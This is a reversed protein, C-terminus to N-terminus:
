QRLSWSPFLRTREGGGAGPAGPRGLEGQAPVSRIHPPEAAREVASDRSLSARHRSWARPRSRQSAAHAELAPRSPGDASATNQSLVVVTKRRALKPVADLEHMKRAVHGMQAPVTPHAIVEGPTIHVSELGSIGLRGLGVNLCGALLYAPLVTGSVDYFRSAELQEGEVGPGGPCLVDAWTKTLLTHLASRHQPALRSTLPEHEAAAVDRKELLVRPEKSEYDGASPLTAQGLTDFCALAKVAGVLLDMVASAVDGPVRGASFELALAVRAPGIATSSAVIDPVIRAPAEVTKYTFATKDLSLAASGDGPFRSRHRVVTSFQTWGPWDTCERIIAQGGLAEHALSFACERQVLQMLHLASPRRSPFRVRVPVTNELPGVMSSSLSSPSSSSSSSPADTRAGLRTRRRQGEVLEGFVVDASGSLRALVMAWATKLVTDFCIGVDGLPAVDVTEHLATQDAAPGCPRPHPVVQTMRAGALRTKWHRVSDRRRAGAQAAQAFQLFSPRAPVSDPREYLRVLDQVVQAASGETMQATSFRMLLKGQKGGGGELYTFGTVPRGLRLPLRRDQQMAMDAEGDLSRAPCCRYRFPARFSAVAVQYARCEHVAFATRLIPHVMTLAECAAELRQQRVPGDFDLVLWGIDGRPQYLSSEISQSQQSTAEAAELVDHRSDGLQPALVLKILGEYPGRDWTESVRPEHSVKGGGRADDEDDSDVSYTSRCIDTLTAGRLVQRISVDFGGQRCSVVLRAALLKDGGADSFSDSPRIGAAATGLVGAWILRMSEETKTLPLPKDVFPPTQVGTYQGDALGMLQTYTLSAVMRRLRRRNVKLSVSLPLGRVPVFVPPICQWPLEKEAKISKSLSTEVARRAAFLKQKVEPGLCNLDYPKCGPKRGLDLFAALLSMSDSTTIPEVAVDVGRALCLRIQREIDAILVPTGSVTIEDQRSAVLRVHGRDLHRAVQGTRLYRWKPKTQPERLFEPDMLPQGPVFRHPTVLPSDIALEGTAGIPVMRKPDKPNLVLFRGMLPPGIVDAEDPGRVQLVSIALPCVDPAGYAVLVNTRPLWPSYTEQDLSRTRFCITKLSPVKTPELRRALVPTMYSWSVNMHTIVGELDDIRDSESPICVCGGHLLTCFIEVLAVDVNFASLQLVRSGDCISLAPGQVSLISCLSQHTFFIGKPKTAGPSLFVCAAQEPIPEHPVFSVQPPLAALASQNVLVCNDVAPSIHKWAPGTVLVLPPTLQRIISMATAVDQGDLAVFCGGAKLVALMVVPSWLCKDLVLPVLAGPGVGLNVLHTALKTVSAELQQYSLQGDWASVAKAQPRRRAQQIILQHICASVKTDTQCPDWDPTTIQRYDRETFLDIDSVPRAPADLVLHLAREFSNVVNHAQDATFHHYTIDGRLRNGLRTICLSLECNANVSSAVLEPQWAASELHIRNTIRLAQTADQFSVCTNFLPEGALGLAHEIEAVTPCESKAAERSLAQLGRLVDMVVLHPSSLDMLCPVLAALSGINQLRHPPLTQERGPSQYGFSIKDAGAFTRLVLAWSLKILLSPELNHERCFGLVRAPSINLDFGRTQMRGRNQFALRPFLCPAAVGPTIGWAELRYTADQSSIHRHRRTSPAELLHIAEGAYMRRLQSILTHISAPDCIAQSADLRLYTQTSSASISLRHRPQSLPLKMAPISALTEVPNSSDVFLVSPSISKLIVKDFLGRESISEIFVTRLSAHMAVLSAWAEGLRAQDIPQHQQQDHSLPVIEYTCSVHFAEPAQAQAILMEQQVPDVPGLSDVNVVSDLGVAALRSAALRAVADYSTDLLPADALTLQPQMVRLRGVAELLSHEFNHMWAAIRDRRAAHANFLFEVRAGAADIVVSVEFLAIRGVRPGIDSVLSEFERDPAAIPELIGGDRGLQRLTEVCNFMVEVPIAEPQSPSPSASSTSFKSTPLSASSSSASCCSSPSLPASTSAPSAPSAGGQRSALVACRTDKVLRVLQVLDTEVDAAAVALPCLTTFWGVTTDLADHRDGRGGRGGRDRGHHQKWVTPVRRDPFTQRFSHLLAAVLIDASETRFVANCEAVLCAAADPTLCFALQATDAYCNRRGQLAWYSAMSSGLVPDVVRQSGELSQREAWRPFAMSSSSSPSSPSALTGHRLLSDLDDLLVRWSVVDVVLHHAVLYLLQHNNRTRIHQAAFVPGRFVNLSRQAQDMIALLAKNKRRRKKEKKKVREGEDEEKNKKKSRTRKEGRGRLSDDNDEEEEVEEGDVVDDGGGNDAEDDDYDDDDDDDDAYKHEFRYSRRAAPAIVQAWGDGTLRFRARLMAHRCALVDIAAEIDALEAGGGGVRLLISQSFRFGAGSVAASEISRKMTTRFFLQQMLSLPFFESEKGPEEAAGPGQWAISEKRAEASPSEPLTPTEKAEEAQLGEREKRKMMEMATDGRRHRILQQLELIQEEVEETVNQVWTQLQRADPEGRGDLAMSRLVIWVDPRPADGGWELVATRLEHVQWRGAEHEEPPILSTDRCYRPNAAATVLAVFRGEFPGARPTVFCARGVKSTSLVLNELQQQKGDGQDRKKDAGGSSSSPSSSVSELLDFLAAAEADIATFIDDRSSTPTAPEESLKAESASAEILRPPERPPPPTTTTPTYTRCDLWPSAARETPSKDAAMSVPASPRQLYDDLEKHQSLDAFLDSPQSQGRKSRQPTDLSADGAARASPSSAGVAAAADGEALLPEELQPRGQEM